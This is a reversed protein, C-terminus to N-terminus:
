PYHTSRGCPALTPGYPSRLHTASVVGPIPPSYLYVALSHSLILPSFTLYPAYATPCSCFVRPPLSVLCSSVLRHFLPSSSSGQLQLVESKLKHVQIISFHKACLEMQVLGTASISIHSVAVAYSLYQLFIM